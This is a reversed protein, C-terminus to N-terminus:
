TQVLEHALKHKEIKDCTQAEKKPKHPGTVKPSNETEYSPLGVNSLADNVAKVKGVGLNKKLISYQRMMIHAM